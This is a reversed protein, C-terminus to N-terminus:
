KSTRPFTYCGKSGPVRQFRGEVKGSSLGSTVCDRVRTKFKPKVEGFLLAICDDISYIKGPNAELLSVLAAKVSLGRYPPLMLGSVESLPRNPQAQSHRVSESRQAPPPLAPEILKLDLTYCGPEDAVKAWLKPELGQTLTSAVRNKVLKFLEPELEGYLSRVIFDLHLVTGSHETFLVCLAEVRNMGQYPPLMEVLQTENDSDPSRSGGNLITNPAENHKEASPVEPQPPEDIPTVDVSSAGQLSSSVHGNTESAVVAVAPATTIPTQPALQSQQPPPDTVASPSSAALEVLTLASSSNSPPTVEQWSGLLAEVHSLQSQALALKQQHELVRQAYYDRLEVLPSQLNSPPPALHFQQTMSSAITTFM